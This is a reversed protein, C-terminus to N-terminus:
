FSKLVKLVESCYTRGIPLTHEQISVEAASWSEIKNISILFSRHIRLFHKHRLKEELDSIKEHVTITRTETVIRAYDRQSEIFLIENILIRITKGAAQIWLYSDAADSGIPQVPASKQKYVKAVAQMFREFSIPKLLYDTVDLEYGAIAYERYATTLIVIPPNVLSKLFNIGSLKPMQVDLFLLDVPTKQLAQFASIANDFKGMIQLDEVNAIHSELVELALPEDDIIFCSIKM